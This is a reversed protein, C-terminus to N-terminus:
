RRSMSLLSEGRCAAREGRWAGLEYAARRPIAGLAWPLATWGLHSLLCAADRGGQFVPGVVRRGAPRVEDFGPITRLGFTERAARRYVQALSEDRAYYVSADPSYVVEHGLKTMQGAWKVDETGPLTEDFPVESWLRRRIASNANSFLLRPPEGSAPFWRSIAMAELPNCDPHPVQRGYVGAVAPREFPQVLFELWQPSVPVAHASLLVVVAGRAASIGYNLSYGYTFQEPGITLLRVGWRRAIELTGDTSGSDVVLVEARDALSQAKVAELVPGIYRAENKTRIIISCEKDEMVGEM